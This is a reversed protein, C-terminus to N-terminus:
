AIPAGQHFHQGGQENRSKEERRSEGGRAAVVMAPMAASPAMAASVVAVVAIRAPRLRPAAIDADGREALLGKVEADAAAM